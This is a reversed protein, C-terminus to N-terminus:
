PSLHFVIIISGALIVKFANLTLKSCRVEMRLHFRENGDDNPARLSTESVRDILTRVGSAYAKVSGYRRNNMSM